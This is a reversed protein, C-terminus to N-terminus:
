KLEAAADQTLALLQDINVGAIHDFDSADSGHDSESDLQTQHSGQLEPGATDEFYSADGTNALVPVFPPETHIMGDWPTDAFFPHTTIQKFSFAGLRAKPDVALLGIALDAADPSFLSDLNTRAHLPTTLISQLIEKPSEGTYPTDGVVLEHFLVGAAWLDLTYDAVAENIMEPALYPLTGCQQLRRSSSSLGFDALKVHGNAAMLVNSPKIDRHLIKRQHLYDLGLLTEALYFRAHPELVCGVNNLLGLLDGGPCYELVFYIHRMSRMAFYGRVLFPCDHKYLIEKEVSVSASMKLERIRGKRMAKLAFHDGTKKKRALWVQGVGGSSLTRLLKFDTISYAPPAVTDAGVRTTAPQGDDAAYDTADLLEIVEQSRMVKGTLVGKLQAAYASFTAGGSSMSLAHKKQVDVLQKLLTSNSGVIHLPSSTQRHTTDALSANCIAALQELPACLLAHRQMTAMLLSSLLQRSTHALSRLLKCLERNAAAHEQAAKHHAVCLTTHAALVRRAVRKECVRCIVSDEGLTSLTAAGVM